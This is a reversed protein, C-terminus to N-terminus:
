EYTLTIWDTGGRITLVTTNVRHNREGFVSNFGISAASVALQNRQLQCVWITSLPAQHNITELINTEDLTKNAELHYCM